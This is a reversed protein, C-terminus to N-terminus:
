LGASAVTIKGTAPAVTVVYVHPGAVVQVTGDSHPAGLLDFYMTATGGFNATMSGLGSFGNSSGFAVTYNMQTIPSIIPPSANANNSLSYSMGANNFVVYVPTQSTIALNQAYQLDASITRAAAVTQTDTTDSVSPIVIAASIGIIVMTVMIEALTFAPVFPSQSRNRRKFDTGTGKKGAYNAYNAALKKGSNQTRTTM